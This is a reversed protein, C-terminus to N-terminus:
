KSNVEFTLVIKEEEPLEIRKFDNGKLDKVFNLWFKQATTNQFTQSIEWKGPFHHIIKEAAFAGIGKKRFYKLIFFEAIANTNKAGLLSHKNILSFGAIEGNVLILFPYREKDTWYEDLYEYTFKGREGLHEGGFETFDYQYLQMLNAIIDKDQIEVKKVEINMGKFIRLILLHELKLDLHPASKSFNCRLIM